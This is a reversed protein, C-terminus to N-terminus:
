EVHRKLKSYYDPVEGLHDLAIERAASGNSTHEKEVKMGMELQKKIQSLPVGHKKAIEEPTSTKKNLVKKRLEKVTIKGENIGSPFPKVLNKSSFEPGTGRSGDSKVNKKKINEKTAPVVSDERVIRKLKRKKYEIKFNEQGPTMKKYADVIEKTGELYSEFQTNVNETIGRIAKMSAIWQNAKHSPPTRLFQNIKKHAATVAYQYVQKEDRRATRLDLSNNFLIFSEDGFLSHFHEINQASAVWKQHRILEPVTRGGLNGREINRDKSIVNDTHVFIMMTDYGMSELQKKITDISAYDHASGNIILGLRGSLTLKQKTTTINKARGRVLDRKEAQEPPMKLDLGHKQMLFQFAIDSSIEKLGYGGLLKNMVFDKGSGPGGAMFIAKFTHKDYIGENIMEESERIPPPAYAARISSLPKPTTKPQSAHHKRIADYVKKVHKENMEPHYAKFHEWNGDKALKEVKSASVSRVLEDKSMKRPDREDETREGGAAHVEIKKFHFPINGSKDKKGNYKQIFDKYEQVRDSGAVLHLEDHSKNLHKLFDPLTKTEKTGTNVPHGFVKEAHSKKTKLDLPESAGSLGITLKGGVKKHIDKAADIATRHGITPIRVKGYFAVGPSKNAM